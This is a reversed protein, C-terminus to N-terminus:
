IYNDILFIYVVMRFTTTLLFKTKFSILVKLFLCCLQAYIITEKCEPGNDEIIVEVGSDKVIDIWNIQPAYRLFKNQIIQM